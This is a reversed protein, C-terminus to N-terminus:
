FSRCSSSRTQSAAWLRRRHTPTEPMPTPPTSAMASPYGDQSCHRGRDDMLLLLINPPQPAGSAGMGAAS